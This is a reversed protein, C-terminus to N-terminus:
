LDPEEASGSSSPAARFDVLWGSFLVGVRGALENFGLEHSEVIQDVGQRTEDHLCSLLYDCLDQVTALESRLADLGVADAEVQLSREWMSRYERFVPVRGWFHIENFKLKDIVVNGHLLDNRENVLSQYARCPDSAYDPQSKFGRCNISLSRVRVDIPQRFLNEVLRQDSRIEPRMLVYLLLNVFAEAMVPLMSRIGFCLGFGKNYRAALEGWRNAVDEQSVEAEFPEYRDEEPKLNLDDLEARLRDVARRIRQYPNVFEIWYELGKRIKSMGKGRNAFDARVQNVLDAKHTPDPAFGMIFVDTRFNLGLIVIVGREHGLTWDWHILNDSSDSRLINQVGNPPGFRAGLYCFLDAPRLENGIELPALLDGWPKETFAKFVEKTEIPRLSEVFDAPLTM